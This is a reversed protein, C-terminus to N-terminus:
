KVGSSGFGQGGRMSEELKDSDVFHATEFPAIVAQAIRDGKRIVYSGNPYEAYLGWDNNASEGSILDPYDATWYTVDRENLDIGYIEKHAINDVIVGIEGRYGSDVTGLQVRLKTKLTVGSRPRIQMEYGPPLEFALGTPVLKTEGPEIIVDQTAILDFGADGERAYKPIVADENLRKIKVNLKMSEDERLQKANLEALTCLVSFKDCMLRRAIEIM